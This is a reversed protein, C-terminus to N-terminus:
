ETRRKKEADIIQRIRERTLKTTNVLETQWGRREGHKEWYAYIRAYLQPRLTNLRAETRVYDRALKALDADEMPPSEWTM